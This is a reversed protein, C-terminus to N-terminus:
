LGFWLIKNYIVKYRLSKRPLGQLSSVRTALEWLSVGHCKMAVISLLEDPFRPNSHNKIDSLHSLDKKYKQKTKAKCKRNGKFCRNTLVGDKNLPPVGKKQLNSKYELILQGPVQCYIRFRINRFFTSRGFFAKRNPCRFVNNLITEDVLRSTSNLSFGFSFYGLNEDELARFLQYSNLPFNEISNNM